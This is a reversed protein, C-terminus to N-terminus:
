FSVKKKQLAPPLPIYTSVGGSIPSFKNISIILYSTTRYTWGSGHSEFEEIKRLITEILELLVNKINSDILIEKNETVFHKYDIEETSLLEFECCLKLYIKIPGSKKLINRLKIILIKICEELFRSPDKYALNIITATIIRSKFASAIIKWAVRKPLRNSYNNHQLGSSGAGGAFGGSGHKIKHQRIQENFSKLLSLANEFKLKEPHTLDSKKFKNLVKRISNKNFKSFNLRDSESKIALFLKKTDSLLDNINM